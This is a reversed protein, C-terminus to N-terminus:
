HDVNDNELQKLFSNVVECDDFPHEGSVSYSKGDTGYDAEIEVRYLNGDKDELEVQYANSNLLEYDNIYM